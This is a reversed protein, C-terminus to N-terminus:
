ISDNKYGYVKKLKKAKCITDNILECERPSIKNYQTDIFDTLPYIEMILEVGYTEEKNEANSIYDYKLYKNYINIYKNDRLLLTTYYDIYDPHPSMPLGNSGEVNIIDMVCHRCKAFYLDKINYRIFFDKIDNEM